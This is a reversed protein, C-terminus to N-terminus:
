NDSSPKDQKPMALSKVINHYAGAVIDFPTAQEYATVEIPVNSYPLVVQQGQGGQTAYVLRRGLQCQLNSGWAFLKDNSTLVLCHKLGCAIKTM